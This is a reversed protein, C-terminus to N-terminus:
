AVLDARPPGAPQDDIDLAGYVAELSTVLRERKSKFQAEDVRGARHDSELRALEGLLQGRRTQLKRMEADGSADGRTSRVAGVVGALLIGVALMLALYRPLPNHHPLGSVTLSVAQGAPVGPGAAAILTAGGAPMDQQRAIQLSTLRMDGLKRVLVAVHELPIPFRQVVDISGSTVPLMAGIQISTKGPPFPGQIQVHAGTAIAQAGGEMVATGIAGTPMDFAVPAKPNVPASGNNVVDLLYYLQLTEDGPEFVFRTDGGFTVDGAVAPTPAAGGGSAAAGGGPPTAALILRIGGSSPAPFEQSELREGEVVTVAKLMAGAPLKDFQARGADDTKVSRAKGDVLLDVQQGTLNNALTGRVVRVSVSGNPLDDVPRPIGSMQRPDPMQFQALAPAILGFLALAAVAGARLMTKMPAAIRTMTRGRAM